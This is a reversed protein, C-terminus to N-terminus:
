RGPLRPIWRPVRARYDNYSSGFSRTLTPEEYIVIMGHFLLAVGLAYALIPTSAFLLLQGFVATLVGVYMPNRVYEYLGRTVLTRPPDIPALTGRGRVAFDRACWLLSWGAAILAVGAVALPSRHTIPPENAIAWPLWGAVTGPMLLLFLIARIWVPM